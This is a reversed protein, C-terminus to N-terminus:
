KNILHVRRILGCFGTINDNQIWDGPVSIEILYQPRENDPLTVTLSTDTAKLHYPGPDFKLLSLLTGSDPEYQFIDLLPDRVSNQYKVAGTWRVTMQDNPSVQTAEAPETITLESPCPFSFEHHHGSEDVTITMTGGPQIPIDGAYAPDYTGPSEPEAPAEPILTGNIKVTAGTLLDDNKRLEFWGSVPGEKPYGKTNPYQTLWIGLAANLEVAGGGGGNDGGSTGDKGNGTDGGNSSSSPGSCAALLLSFCVAMFRTASMDEEKEGVPFKM